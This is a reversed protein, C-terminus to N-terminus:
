DNEQQEHRSALARLWGILAKAMFARQTADQTSAVCEIGAEIEDLISGLPPMGELAPRLKALLQATSMQAAPISKDDEKEDLKSAADLFKNIQPGNGNLFAEPNAHAMLLLKDALELVYRRREAKSLLKFPPEPPEPEPEPEVKSRGVQAESCDGSIYDDISWRDEWPMGIEHKSCRRLTHDSEVFLKEM